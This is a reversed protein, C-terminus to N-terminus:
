ASAPLADLGTVVPARHSQPTQVSEPTALGLALLYADLENWHKYQAVDAWCDSQMKEWSTHKAYEVMNDVLQLSAIIIDRCLTGRFIRFEVTARNNLNVATYRGDSSVSDSDYPNIRRRATDKLSEADMTSDYWYLSPRSAWHDLEDPDRRSFVELFHWYKNALVVLKRTTTDKGQIDSGLNARGVHIHLGATGCDQSRYGARAIVKCLYNWRLNYMHYRLTCPHTVTELGYNLSGDSKCYTPQNLGDIRDSLDYKDMVRDVGYAGDCELELGYTTAEPKDQATRQFIPTPKYSYNHLM